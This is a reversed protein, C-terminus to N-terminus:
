EGRMDSDATGSGTAGVVGVVVMKCRGDGQKKKMKRRRERKGERKGKREREEEDGHHNGMKGNSGPVGSCRCWQQRRWRQGAIEEVAPSEGGDGAMDEM